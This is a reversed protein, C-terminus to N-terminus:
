QLRRQPSDSSEREIGRAGRIQEIHRGDIEPVLGFKPDDIADLLANQQRLGDRHRPAIAALRNLQLAPKHIEISIAYAFEHL